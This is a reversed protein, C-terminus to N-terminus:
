IWTHCPKRWINQKWKWIRIIQVATFSSPTCTDPQTLSLKSVLNICISCLNASCSCYVLRSQTSMTPSGSFRLSLPSSSSPVTSLTKSTIPTGISFCLRWAICLNCLVLTTIALTQLRLTAIVIKQLLFFSRSSLWSLFFFELTLFDINIFRQTRGVFMDQTFAISMMLFIINICKAYDITFNFNFISASVPLFGSFYAVFLVQYFDKNYVYHSCYVFFMFAFYIWM